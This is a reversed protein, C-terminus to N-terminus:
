GVQELTAELEVRFPDLAAVLAARLADEVGDAGSEIHLDDPDADPAFEKVTAEGSAGGEAEWAVKLCLDFHACVRGQKRVAVWCDGDAITAATIRLTSPTTTSAAAALVDGVRGRAWAIRDREEWHWGNVNVGDERPQVLWRPDRDEWRAM